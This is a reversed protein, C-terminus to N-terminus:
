KDSLFGERGHLMRGRALNGGRRCRGVGECHSGGRDLDWLDTVKRLGRGSMGECAVAARLLAKSLVMAWAERNMSPLGVAPHAGTVGGCGQGADCDTMTIDGEPSGCGALHGGAVGADGLRLSAELSLEGNQVAKCTMAADKSGIQMLPAQGRKRQRRETLFAEHVNEFPLFLDSADNNSLIISTAMPYQQMPESGSNLPGENVSAHPPFSRSPQPIEISIIGARKLECM